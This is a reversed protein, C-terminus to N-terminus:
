QYNGLTFAAENFCNVWQEKIPTWNVLFYDVVSRLKTRKLAEVNHVHDEFNKSYVIDRM